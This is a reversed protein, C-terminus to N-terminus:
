GFMEMQVPVLDWVSARKGSANKRREGTERITGMKRLESMRPRITLRDAGVRAAVEDATMPGHEGLARVCLNRYYGANSQAAQAAEESTGSAKFGPTEPYRTM